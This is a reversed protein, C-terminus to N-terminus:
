RKYLVFFSRKGVTIKQSVWIIVESVVIADNQYQKQLLKKYQAIKLLYNIIDKISNCYQKREFFVM